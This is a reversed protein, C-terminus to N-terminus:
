KKMLLVVVVIGGGILLLPMLSSAPQAYPYPYTSAYAGPNVIKGVTTAINGVINWPNTAPAAPTSPTSTWGGGSTLGGILGGGSATPTSELGSTIPTGTSPTSSSDFWSDSADDGISGMAGSSLSGLRSRTKKRVHRRPATPVDGMQRRYRGPSTSIGGMGDTYRKREILTPVQIFAM